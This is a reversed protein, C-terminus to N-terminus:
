EASPPQPSKLGTQPRPLDHRIPQIEKVIAHRASSFVGQLIHIIIIPLLLVGSFAIALTWEIPTVKGHTALQQITYLQGLAALFFLITAKVFHAKSFYSMGMTFLGALAIAKAAISVATFPYTMLTTNTLFLYPNKIGLNIPGAIRDLVYGFILLGLITFWFYDKKM